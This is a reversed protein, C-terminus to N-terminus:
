VHIEERTKLFDEYSGDFNKEYKNDNVMLALEEELEKQNEKFYLYCTYTYMKYMFNKEEKRVKKKSYSNEDYMREKSIYKDHITKFNFEEIVKLSLDENELIFTKCLFERYKKINFCRIFISVESSDAVPIEM